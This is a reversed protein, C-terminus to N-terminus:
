HRKGGAPRLIKVAGWPLPAPCGRRVRASGTARGGTLTPRYRQWRPWSPRALVGARGARGQRGAGDPAPALARPGVLAPEPGADHGLRANDRFRDPRDGVVLRLFPFAGVAGACSRSDLPPRQPCCPPRRHATGTFASPRPGPRVPARDPPPCAARARVAAGQGIRGRKDKLQRASGGSGESQDCLVREDSFPVGGRGAKSRAGECGRASGPM